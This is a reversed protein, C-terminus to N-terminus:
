LLMDHVKPDTFAVVEPPHNAKLPASSQPASDSVNAQGKRAIDVIGGSDPMAKQKKAVGQMAEDSQPQRTSGM